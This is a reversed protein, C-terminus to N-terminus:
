FTIVGRLVKGDRLDQYGIEVEDLKYRHSILEDLKLQGAEYLSLLKPIQTRPNTSGYIAGKLEKNWLTLDALSLPVETQSYPAVSTAVATGGKGVISMAGALIDGYLVSATILVRDCLRGRSVQQIIPLAEEISAATHTAGFEEAKQRKFEVPDIAIIM